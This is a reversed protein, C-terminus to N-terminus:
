RKRISDSGFREVIAFCIGAVLFYVHANSEFALSLTLAGATFNAIALWAFWSLTHRQSITVTKDAMIIVDRRDTKLGLTDSNNIFILFM